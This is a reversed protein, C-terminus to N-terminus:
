PTKQYTAACRCSLVANPPGGLAKAIAARARRVTAKDRAIRRPLEGDARAQIEAELDDACEQLAELLDPAAAILRADHESLPAAALLADLFMMLVPSDIWTGRIWASGRWEQVIYQGNEKQVTWGDPPHRGVVPELPGRPCDKTNM